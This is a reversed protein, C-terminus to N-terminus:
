KNESYKPISEMRRKIEEPSVDEIHTSVDWIHGFPDKLTASRDGYFMNELPRIVTAGQHMAKKVVEDVNEIYVHMLVPSGGYTKPSRANMEPHEDALMIRSSGLKLEAHGIKGDPKAVRMEEKAGFVQTYFEIAKAANDVILYPTINHYGEPIPKVSKAM